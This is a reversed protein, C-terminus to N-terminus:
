AAADGGNMRRNAAGSHHDLIHISGHRPIERAHPPPGAVGGDLGGASGAHAKVIPKVFGDGVLSSQVLVRFVVFRSVIPEIRSGSAEFANRSSIRRRLLRAPGSNRVSKIRHDLAKFCPERAGFRLGRAGKFSDGSDELAVARRSVAVAARQDVRHPPEFRDPCVQGASSLSALRATVAESPRGRQIRIRWEIELGRHRLDGHAAM